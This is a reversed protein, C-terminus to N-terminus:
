ARWGLVSANNVMVGSKQAYMAPLFARTMRFLSTLTVAFVRSWQEDTMDVIAASGGLGASRRNMLFTNWLAKTM